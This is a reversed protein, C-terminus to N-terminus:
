KIMNTAKNTTTVLVYRTADLAIFGPVRLFKQGEMVSKRLGRPVRGGQLIGRVWDRRVADVFCNKPVGEEDLDRICHVKIYNPVSADKQHDLWKLHEEQM